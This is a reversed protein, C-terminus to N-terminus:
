IGGMKLSRGKIRHGNIERERMGELLLCRSSTMKLQRIIEGEGEVCEQSGEAGALESQCSECADHSGVM